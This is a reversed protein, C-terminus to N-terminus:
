HGNATNYTFKAIKWERAFPWWSDSTRVKRFEWIDGDLSVVEVPNSGTGWLMIGNTSSRARAYGSFPQVDEITVDFHELRQFRPLEEYRRRINAIGDWTQVPRGVAGERGMDSISAGEQYLGIVKDVSRERTFAAENEIISRLHTDAWLEAQSYVNWGLSISSVVLALLAIPEERLLRKGATVLGAIRRTV